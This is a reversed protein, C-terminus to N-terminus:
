KSHQRNRRVDISSTAASAEVATKRAAESAKGAHVASDEGCPMEM